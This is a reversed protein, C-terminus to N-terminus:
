MAPFSLPVYRSHMRAPRGRERTPVEWREQQELPHASFQRAWPTEAPLTSPHVMAPFSLPLYRSHMRAPRGRERTPVEEWRKQKELSRAGAQRAM